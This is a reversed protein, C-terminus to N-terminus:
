HIPYGGWMARSGPTPGMWTAVLPVQVWPLAPGGTVAWGAVPWEGVQCSYMVLRDGTLRDTNLYICTLWDGAVPWQVSFSVGPLLWYESTLQDCTMLRYTLRQNTISMGHAHLECCISWIQTRFVWVSMFNLVWSIVRRLFLEIVGPAPSWYYTRDWHQIQAEQCCSVVVPSWVVSLSWLSKMRFMDGPPALGSSFMCRLLHSMFQRRDGGRRPWCRWVRTFSSSCRFSGFLRVLFSSSSWCIRRRRWWRIILGMVIASVFSTSMTRLGYVRVGIISCGASIVLTKVIGWSFCTMCHEVFSEPESNSISVQDKWLAIFLTQLSKGGSNHGLGVLSCIGAFGREPM